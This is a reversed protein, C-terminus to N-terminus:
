KLFNYVMIVLINNTLGLKIYLSLQISLKFIIFQIIVCHQFIYATSQSVNYYTLHNSIILPSFQIRNFPNFMNKNEQINKDTKKIFLNGIIM